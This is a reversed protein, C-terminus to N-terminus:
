HLDFDVFVTFFVDVPRGDLMAPRYRWQRVAEVATEEFGFNARTCRLVKLDEM